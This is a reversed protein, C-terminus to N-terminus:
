MSAISLEAAGSGNGSATASGTVSGGGGAPRGITNTRGNSFM